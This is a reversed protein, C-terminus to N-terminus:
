DQDNIFEYPDLGLMKAAARAQWSPERHNHNQRRARKRPVLEQLQNSSAPEPDRNPCVERGRNPGVEHGLEPRHGAEASPGSEAIGVIAMRYRNLKRRDGSKRELYGFEVLRNVARVASTRGIRADKVITGFGPWAVGDDNCRDLIAGLAAVDTRSLRSDVSAARLLRWRAVLGFPSAESM